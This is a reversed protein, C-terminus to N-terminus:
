YLFDPHHSCTVPQVELCFNILSMNRFGLGDMRPLKGFFGNMKHTCINSCFTTHLITQMVNEEVHSQQLIHSINQTRFICTYLNPVFNPVYPSSGIPPSINILFFVKQLIGTQLFEPLSSYIRKVLKKLPQNGEAILWEYINIYVQSSTYIASGTFAM